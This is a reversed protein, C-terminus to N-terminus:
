AAIKLTLEDNAPIKNQNTIIVERGTRGNANTNINRRVDVMEITYDSFLRHIFEHNSNTLIVHCGLKTLRKFEKALTIQDNESFGAATYSTFTEHYPPDLFILDNAKADKLTTKFDQHIITYGRLAKSVSRLNDPNLFRRGNAPPKGYSANFGGKKNTRYLGNFCTKNLYIMRAAVETSTMLEWSKARLNNYYDKDDTHKELQSIVAEVEDRIACHTIVLEKNADSLVAEKPNLNLPIALAGMFPDIYRGYNEPFKEKLRTLLQTKGGVWKLAPKTAEKEVKDKTNM